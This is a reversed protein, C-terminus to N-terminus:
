QVDAVKGDVFVIKMDKYVYIKKQGLDVIKEPKGLSAEVQEPTQGLGVTKTNAAQAEAEPVIVADVVKKVADADATDLFGKPFRFSVRAKYRVQRSSGGMNTEYTDCTVVEFAVDDNGIGIRIVYVKEGAKLSRNRASEFFAASFGGPEHVSGDEVKTTMVGSTGSPNGYIGDKQIVFVTGPRTVRQEDISIKTLEYKAKLSEALNKKWEDATSAPTIGLSAVFALFVGFSGNRM